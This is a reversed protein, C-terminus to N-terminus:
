SMIDLLPKLDADSMEAIALEFDCGDEPADEVGADAFFSKVEDSQLFESLQDKTLDKIVATIKIGCAEGRHAQGAMKEKIDALVSM